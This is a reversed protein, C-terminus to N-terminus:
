HIQWLKIKKLKMIHHNIKNEVIKFQKKEYLSIAYKNDFDVSLYVDTNSNLLLDDMIKDGIKNGIQSDSVMIGLWIKNDEYDLHGYGVCINDIYYLCTYIHNKIINYPKKSYYRFTKVGNINKKIFEDIELLSSCDTHHIIKKILM